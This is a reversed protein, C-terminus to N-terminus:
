EEEKKVLIGKIPTNKYDLTYTNTGVLPRKIEMLSYGPIKDVVVNIYHPIFYGLFHEILRTALNIDLAEDVTAPKLTVTYMRGEDTREYKTEFESVNTLLRILYAIGGNTGRRQKLAGINKLVKRQYLIVRNGDKDTLPAFEGDGVIKVEISWDFKFGFMEYLYPFIAVPCKDPDILDTFHEINDIISEIAGKTHGVVKKEGNERQILDYGTAAQLFRYLPAVPYINMDEKIWSPPLCKYYLHNLLEQGTM